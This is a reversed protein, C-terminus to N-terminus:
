SLGSYHVVGVTTTYTLELHKNHPCHEVRKPSNAGMLFAGPLTVLEGSWARSITLRHLYHKHNTAM